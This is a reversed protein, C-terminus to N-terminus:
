VVTDMKKRVTGHPSTADGHLEFSGSTTTSDDSVEDRSEDVKGLPRLPGTHGFTNTCSRSPSLQPSHRADTFTRGHGESEGTAVSGDGNARGYKSLDNNNTQHGNPLKHPTSGDAHDAGRMGSASSVPAAGPPIPRVGCQSVPMHSNHIKALQERIGNHDIRPMTKVAYRAGPPRLQNCNPPFRRIHLPGNDTPPPGATASPLKSGYALRTRSQPNIVDANRERCAERSPDVGQMDNTSATRRNESWLSELIYFVAPMLKIIGTILTIM